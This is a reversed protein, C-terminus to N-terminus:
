LKADSHGGTTSIPPQVSYFYLADRGGGWFWSYQYGEPDREKYEQWLLALTVGKRKLERHIELWDPGQRTKSIISQPPFLLREIVADNLEEPLPWSL